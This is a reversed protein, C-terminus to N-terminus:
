SDAARTTFPRDAAGIAGCASSPGMRQWRMRKRAQATSATKGDKILFDIAQCNGVPRTCPCGNTVTMSHGSEGRDFRHSDGSMSMANPAPRPKYFQLFTEIFLRRARSMRLWTRRIASFPFFLALRPIAPFATGLVAAPGLNTETSRLNM